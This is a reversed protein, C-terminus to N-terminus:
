DRVCRCSYATKKSNQERIVKEKSTDFRFNWSNSSTYETSSWYVGDSDVSSFYGNSAWRYGGLRAEFGSAGGTMLAKYILLEDYEKQRDDKADVGFYESGYSKKLNIWEESTPLRWGEGLTACGITAAEWTYLRGYKECNASDADYCCSQPIDVRLNEMLWLKGDKMTKYRYINGDSDKAASDPLAAVAAAPRNADRARNYGVAVAEERTQRTPYAGLAFLSGFKRVALQAETLTAGM